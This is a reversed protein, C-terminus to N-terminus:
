PRRWTTDPHPDVISKVFEEARKVKPKWTEKDVTIFPWLELETISIIRGDSLKDVRIGEICRDPDDVRYFVSHVVVVSDQSLVGPTKM